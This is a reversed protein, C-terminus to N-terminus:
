KTVLAITMIASASYEFSLPKNEYYKNSFIDALSKVLKVILSADNTSSPAKKNCLM